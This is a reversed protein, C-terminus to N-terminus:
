MEFSPEYSQEIRQKGAGAINFQVESLRSYLFDRPLGASSVFCKNLVFDFKYEPIQHVIFIM